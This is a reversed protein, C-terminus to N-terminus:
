NAGGVPHAPSIAGIAWVGDFQDSQILQVRRQNGDPHPAVRHAGCGDQTCNYAAGGGYRLDFSLVQGPPLHMVMPEFGARSASSPIPTRRAHLNGVLILVRSQPNRAAAALVHEALIREYATQDTSPAPVAGQFAVVRLDAGSARLTQLIKFLDLFGESSLGYESGDFVTALLAAEAEAGGDSDVFRQMAETLAPPRELAVVIQGQKAAECVIHGFSTPAERTGHVEGFVLFREPRTRLIEGFGPPSLCEHENPLVGILSSEPHDSCALALTVAALMCACKM